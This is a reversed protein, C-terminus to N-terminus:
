RPKIGRQSCEWIFSGLTVSHTSRLLETFKADTDRPNYKPSVRSVRHFLDRGAEGLKTLSMGIRVWDAYGPTIDIGQREIEAVLEAIKVYDLKPNYQSVAASPQHPEPRAAAIPKQDIVIRFTPADDNIYPAPDYSAYRLRKIDSCANDIKLGLKSQLLMALARFHGAHDSPNSLRFIAFCGTGSASLSCYALERAFLLRRKIENATLGPNDQGDIDICILGTHVFSDEARRGDPCQASIVACPLQAKLATREKKDSTARIRKILERSSECNLFEGLPVLTGNKDTVHEFVTVLTELLKM